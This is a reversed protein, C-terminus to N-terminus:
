RLECAAARVEDEDLSTLVEGAPPVIRESVVKRHRRPVFPLAQWPIDQMVSYHLPRQHRGIHVIDRFGKTTIMGVRSGDHELVANTAVTTAHFVADLDTARLAARACLEALGTVMARDPEDPTSPVKHVHVAGSESDYLMLDTFTGGIDVGVTKM